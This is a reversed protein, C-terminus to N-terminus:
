AIKFFSRTELDNIVFDLEQFGYPKDLYASPEFNEFDYSTKGGIIIIKLTPNLLRLNSLIHESVSVSDIDVFLYRPLDSRLYSLVNKLSNSQYIHALGKKKLYQELTLVTIYNNSLVLASYM